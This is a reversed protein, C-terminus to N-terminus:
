RPFVHAAIEDMGAIDHVDIRLFPVWVVPAPAVAETLGALHAQERSAVAQFDALNRYLGGIPTGALTAAREATGAAVAATVPAGIGV